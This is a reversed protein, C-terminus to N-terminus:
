RLDRVIQAIDEVNCVMVWQKGDPHSKSFIALQYYNTDPILGQGWCPSSKSQLWLGIAKKDTIVKVNADYINELKIQDTFDLMM